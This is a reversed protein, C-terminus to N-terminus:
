TQACSDGVRPNSGTKGRRPKCIKKSWKSLARRKLESRGRFMGLLDVGAFEQLAYSGGAEEFLDPPAPTSKANNASSAGAGWSSEPRRPPPPPPGGANIRRKATAPRSFFSPFNILVETHNMEIQAPILASAAAKPFSTWSSSTLGVTASDWYGDPKAQKWEIETAPRWSQASLLGYQISHVIVPM